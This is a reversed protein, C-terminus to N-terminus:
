RRRRDLSSHGEIAPSPRLRQPSLEERARREFSLLRGFEFLVLGVLGIGGAAAVLPALDFSGLLALLNLVGVAAGAYLGVSGLRRLADAVGSAPWADLTGPVGAVLSIRYIGAALLVLAGAGAVWPALHAADAGATAAALCALVMPVMLGFLTLCYCIKLLFPAQKM